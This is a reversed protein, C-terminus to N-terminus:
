VFQRLDALLDDADLIVLLNGQHEHAVFGIQFLIPRNRPGACESQRLAPAINRVVFRRRPSPGVHVLHEDIQAPLDNPFIELRRLHSLLLVRVPLPFPGVSM